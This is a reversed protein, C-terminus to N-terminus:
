SNQDPYNIQLKAYLDELDLRYDMSKYVRIKRNNQGHIYTMDEAIRPAPIEDYIAPREWEQMMACICGEDGLGWVEGHPWNSDTARAKNLEIMQDFLYKGIQGYPRVRVQLEALSVSFNKYMSKTVQWLPMSSSFVVNAAAIDNMLNFEWEGDPYDGGGIWICTMRECIKPEMLIACALDTIAGQMGIYLPRPDDKMAEEVIFKAGETVIPTKEDAMKEQAGLYVNYKGKLHMYELVRDIEKLSETATTKDPFRKQEKNAEDFHGAIIGKVDLKDTMLAHAVTFQDDAENKCDTHIIYRVRKEKPVEFMYNAWM